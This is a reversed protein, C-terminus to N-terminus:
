RVAEYNAASMNPNSPDIGMNGGRAALVRQAHEGHVPQMGMMTNGGMARQQQMAATQQQLAAVEANTAELQRMQLEERSEMSKKNRSASFLGAAVAGGILLTPIAVAGTVVKGATSGMFRGVAAGRGSWKYGSLHKKAGKFAQNADSRASNFAEKAEKVGSGARVADNLGNLANGFKERNEQLTKIYEGAASSDSKGLGGILADMDALFKEGNKGQYGGSVSSWIKGIM